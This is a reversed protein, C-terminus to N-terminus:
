FIEYYEVEELDINVTIRTFKDDKQTHVMGFEIILWLKDQERKTYWTYVDEYYKTYSRNKFKVIIRM